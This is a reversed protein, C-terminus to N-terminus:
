NGGSPQVAIRIMHLGAIAAFSRLREDDGGFEFIRTMGQEPTTVTMEVPRTTRSGAESAAGVSLIVDAVPPIPKSPQAGVIV